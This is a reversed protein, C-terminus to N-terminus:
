KRARFVGVLDGRVESPVPLAGRAGPIGLGFEDKSEDYWVITDSTSAVVWYDVVVRETSERLEFHELRPEVLADHLLEIEGLYRKTSWESSTPEDVPPEWEALHREVVARVDEPSV